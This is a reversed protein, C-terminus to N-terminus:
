KHTLLHVVPSRDVPRRDRLRRLRDGGGDAHGARVARRRPSLLAARPEYVDVPCSPFTSFRELERLGSTGLRWHTFMSM